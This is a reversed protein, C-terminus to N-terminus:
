GSQSGLDSPNMLNTAEQLGDSDTDDFPQLQQLVAAPAFAAGVAIGSAGATALAAGLGIASLWRMMRTRKAQRPAEAVVRDFLDRSAAYTPAALLARDLLEAARLTAQSEADTAALVRAAGRDADPWRNIDAGYAEALAAFREPTM